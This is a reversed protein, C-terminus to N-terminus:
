LHPLTQEMQAEKRVERGKIDVVMTRSGPELFAEKAVVTEWAGVSSVGSRSRFCDRALM